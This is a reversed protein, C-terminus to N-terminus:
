NSMHLLPTICSMLRKVIVTKANKIPRRQISASLKVYSMTIRIENKKREKEGERGQKEYMLAIMNRKIPMLLCLITIIIIIITIFQLAEYRIM